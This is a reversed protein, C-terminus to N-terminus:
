ATAERWLSLLDIPDELVPSDAMMKEWDVPIGRQTAELAASLNSLARHSAAVRVSDPHDIGYAKLFGGCATQMRRGDTPHVQELMWHHKALKMAFRLKDELSTTAPLDKLERAIDNIAIQQAVDTANNM